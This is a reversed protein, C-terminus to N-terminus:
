STKPGRSTRRERRSLPVSSRSNRRFKSARMTSRCAALIATPHYQSKQTEVVDSLDLLKDNWANQPIVTNPATDHSMVDPVDGTTLAGVIKQMLPAFPILTHDIKNGSAKEYEAVM